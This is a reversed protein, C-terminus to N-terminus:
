RMNIKEKFDDKLITELDNYSIFINNEIAFMVNPFGYNFVYEIGKEQISFVNLNEKEFIRKSHILSQYIDSDELETKNESLLEDLRDKLITNCKKLLVQIKNEKIIDTYLIKKRNLVNFNYYYSDVNINGALSQFDM